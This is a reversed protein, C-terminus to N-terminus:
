QDSDPGSGSRMVAQAPDVFVYGLRRLGEVYAQVDEIWVTSPHLYGAALCSRCVLLERARALQDAVTKRGDLSVYGLNEPLVLAGYEDRRLPWPLWNVPDRLEWTSSFFESV